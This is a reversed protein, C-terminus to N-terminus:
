LPVISSFVGNKGQISMCYMGVAMYILLVLQANLMSIFRDM